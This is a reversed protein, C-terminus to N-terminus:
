AAGKRKKSIVDFTVAALLVAGKVAQQWNVNIGLISMGNNLIGIFVTGILTGGVTGIGGYASAGGIFSAGIADLEFGRGLDPFASNFRAMCVLAAIATLFGMNTYACFLARNTNIGSLKAAKENGGMAYLYRGMVTKSTVYYYVLVVVGAIILVVPIGRDMGFCYFMGMTVTFLVGLRVWMWLLPEIEYNRRLKSFRSYFQVILVVVCIAAGTALATNMRLSMEAGQSMIPLFGGLLVNYDRPMPSITLGKLLVLALGRFALMGALTVIFAPIRVYAIWYGQIAGLIIGLLLCIVISTYINGHLLVYEGMYLNNDWRVILVSGMAAILCLMSGISLDINGGTLICLLMGTALIVIHGNQAILNTVNRPAFLATNTAYRIWVDFFIVVVVLAFLMPNRKIFNVIKLAVTKM